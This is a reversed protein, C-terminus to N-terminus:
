NAVVRLCITNFLFAGDRTLFLVGYLSLPVGCHCEEDSIGQCTESKLDSQFSILGMQTLRNYSLIEGHGSINCAYFQESSM